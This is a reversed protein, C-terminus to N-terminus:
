FQVVGQVYIVTSKNDANRSSSVPVGLDIRGYLHPSFTARFGIGASTLSTHSAQGEGAKHLSSFGQDLFVSALFRGPQDLAIRFEGSVVGGNDGVGEGPTFGRVSDIGGMAFQDQVLLQEGSVQSAMRMQLSLRSTMLLTDRLNLNIKGAHDGFGQSISGGITLQHKPWQENWTIGFFISQNKENLEPTTTAVNSSVARKDTVGIMADVSRNALRKWPHSVMIERSSSNGDIGLPTFEQGVIFRSTAYSFNVKAGLLGVPIMYNIQLLSFPIEAPTVYATRILVSDGRGTLDGWTLTVAIKSDGIARAGFNNYELTLHVPRQDQVQLVLDSSAMEKGPILIANVHLDPFENILRLRQELEKQKFLAEKSSLPFYRSLFSISYYLNGDFRISGLPVEKIELRIPSKKQKIESEKSSDQAFLTSPSLVLLIWFLFAM